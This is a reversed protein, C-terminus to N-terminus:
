FEAPFGDIICGVGRSEARTGDWAWITNIENHAWGHRVLWRSEGPRIWSDPGLGSGDPEKQPNEIVTCHRLWLRTLSGAKGIRLFWESAEEPTLFVVPYRRGDDIRGTLVSMGVLSTSFITPNDGLLSRRNPKPLVSDCLETIIRGQERHAPSLTSYALVPLERRREAAYNQLRPLWERIRAQLRQDTEIHEWFEESGYQWIANWERMAEPDTPYGLERLRAVAKRNLGLIRRLFRM